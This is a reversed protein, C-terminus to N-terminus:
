ELKASIIPIEQRLYEESEARQFIEDLITFGACVEGFAAFGQGDPHRGGGFDLAPEDRMMIFFSGYVEGVGMRAASVTWKTHTIGTQLTSEHKLFPLFERGNERLGGQVVNIPCDPNYSNNQNNVIRFISTNDLMGEGVLKKFYNVTAPARGENLKIRFQGLPTVIAMTHNANM